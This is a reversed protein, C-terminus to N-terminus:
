SMTLPSSRPTRTSATSSSLLDPPRLPSHTRSAGQVGRVRASDGYSVGSRETALTVTVTGSLTVPLAVVLGDADLHAAAGPLPKPPEDDTTDQVVVRGDAVRVELARNRADLLAVEFRAPLPGAARVTMCRGALGAGVLDLGANGAQDRARFDSEQVVVDGPPDGALTAACPVPAAGDVTAAQRAADRRAADAVAKRGEAAGHRYLRALEADTFAKRHSVAVLALLPEVTALRWIGQADRVLLVRAQVTLRRPDSDSYPLYRHMLRTRLVARGRGVALALGHHVTSTPRPVNEDGFVFFGLGSPCPYREPDAFLLQYYAFVDRDLAGCLTALAQTSREMRDVASLLQRAAAHASRPEWRVDLSAPPPLADSGAPTTVVLSGDAQATVDVSTPRSRLDLIVTRPREPAMATVSLVARASPRRWRLSVTEGPQLPEAGGLRAIGRGYSHRGKAPGLRLHTQAARGEPDCALAVVYEGGADRCAAPLEPRTLPAAGAPAALALSALVGATAVFKMATRIMGQVVRDYGDPPRSAARSDDPGTRV